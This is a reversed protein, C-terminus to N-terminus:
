GADTLDCRLVIAEGGAVRLEAAVPAAADLDRALLALRCGEAAFARSIAAGMGKAPGTILAVRGALGLDMVDGRFATWRRGPWPCSRRNGLDSGPNSSPACRRPLTARRPRRCKRSSPAARARGASSGDTRRLWRAASWRLGRCVAYRCGRM